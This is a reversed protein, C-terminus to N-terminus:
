AATMAATISVFGAANFPTGTATSCTTDRHRTFSGFSRDEVLIDTTKAERLTVYAAGRSGLRRSSAKSEISAVLDPRRTRLADYTILDVDDEENGSEITEVRGGAGACTVFDVSKARVLSEVCNTTVGDIKMSQVEGTARISIGMESLMGQKSLEELKQKFDPDIVAATAKITGDSEAWVKKVSAVWNKVSGEPRSKNEADTAHDAFMKAGEFVQYDRKLTEAPYYRQKSTNFGPKIVTLTLLGKSHDYSAEQLREVKGVLARHSNNTM